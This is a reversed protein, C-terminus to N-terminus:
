AMKGKRKKSQTGTAVNTWLALTSTFGNMNPAAQVQPVGNVLVMNVNAKTNLGYLWVKSSGSHVHVMNDQCDETNLCTQDYDDFFTYLGAGYVLVNQSNSIKLGWSMFCDPDNKKCYTFNPDSWQSPYMNFPATAQIQPQFYPTETQIASMYVNQANALQYNYLVNHEVSTGYLWVAKTSEVLLGRGNYINIQNHDPLDLEHDATWLWMNEGYLTAQTTVHLLLFAGLCAPNVSSSNPTKTCTDSQLHSGATGGIRFHVDWMGTAGQTAGQVNWQVMIAGPQPGQVSFILDSIEVAGVDGADGVSFVPTPNAQNQFAAGNAMIIPWIEGTIIINKPVNITNSVVYMGHDFYLIQGSQYKNICAQIAATDDTSGDGKAGCSKISLFASTPYSQYQPKSREFINGSSTLLSSPKNPPTLSKQVRQGNNNVYYEGQVWSQINTNGALITNGNADAVAKASNAFNVNDIVLSGGTVPVSNSNFITRIGIPTNTFTSDQVIASGVSQNGQNNASIDIGVGCNNIKLNKFSWVWDWNLYIATNCNNFTLNRTTFQQNGFFAGYNGGNFVLDTMFGGSGNDMFVGQQKSSAGQVMNFVINQLSTAQAVQWHIGSGTSAPLGTLDIVFNRVQRFFNNQNTYWNVGGDGYPDSDIVAIGQFNSLAKLTPVTVADGVLQTYYYQIIPSSVAYTGPPFYVLAPTTTSSDCGQGCRGGSSIAANIAASDDTVGDGKAGFDMVNRFITYGSSGYAVQGQRQINAMWYSSVRKDLQSDSHALKSDIIVPASNAVPAQGLMIITTFLRVAVLFLTSRM